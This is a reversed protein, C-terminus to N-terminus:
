VLNLSGSLNVLMTILPNPHPPFPTIIAVSIYNSIKAETVENLGRNDGSKLKRAYYPITLIFKIIHVLYRVYYQWRKSGMATLKHTCKPFTVITGARDLDVNFQM